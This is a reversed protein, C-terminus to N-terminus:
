EEATTYLANGGRTTDDLINATKITAAAM